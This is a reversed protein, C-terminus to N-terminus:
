AQGTGPVSCNDRLSHNSNNANIDGDILLVPFNIEIDERLETNLCKLKKKLQRYRILRRTVKFWNVILPAGWTPKCSWLSAPILSGQIKIM